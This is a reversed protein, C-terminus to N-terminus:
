FLHAVPTLAPVCWCFKFLAGMNILLGTQLAEEHDWLVFDLLVELRIAFRCM